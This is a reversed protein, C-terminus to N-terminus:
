PDRIALTTTIYKYNVYGLM